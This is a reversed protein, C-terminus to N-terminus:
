YIDSYSWKLFFCVFRTLQQLERPTKERFFILQSNQKDGGFLSKMDNTQQKQPPPPSVVVFCFESGGMNFGHM